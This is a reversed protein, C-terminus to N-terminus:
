TLQRFYTPEIAYNDGSEEILVDDLLEYCQENISDILQNRLAGHARAFTEITAQPVTLEHEAFLTLLRQQTATLGCGPAYTATTAAEDAIPAAIALQVEEESSSIGQAAGSAPVAVPFLAAEPEDQLYENLLEVTDAHQQQVATIAGLDLQIKKRQRAYVAPIQTLAQDLNKDIMLQGVIEEFRQLQDPQPFLSKQVTKALPKNNITTSHLDHYIYSLYFSLAAERDYKTILKSAEFFINEIAPNRANRKGLEYVGEIFRAQTASNLQAALQDLQPKWRTVNQLNLAVEAAESPARVAQSLSPFLAELPGGVNTELREAQAPEFGSFEAALRRKHGYVERVVNECRRFLTSYVTAEVQENLWREDYSTFQYPGTAAAAKRRRISEQQCAVVEQQLSSGRQVLSMEVLELAQLYFRITAVCCGEVAIFVNDSNWFKNLWDTQQQTLKLKKQYKKGLRPVDYSYDIDNATLAPLPFSRSPAVPEARLPIDQGTVDIVDGPPYIKSAPM